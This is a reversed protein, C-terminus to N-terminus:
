WTQHTYSFTRLLELRLLESLSDISHSDINELFSELEGTLYGDQYTLSDPLVAHILNPNWDSKDYGSNPNGNARQNVFQLFNEEFSVADIYKKLGEKFNWEYDLKIGHDACLREGLSSLKSVLQSLRDWPLLDHKGNIVKRISCLLLPDLSTNVMPLLVEPITSSIGARYFFDKVVDNSYLNERSFLVPIWNVKRSACLAEWRKYVNFNESYPLSSVHLKIAKSYKSDEQLVSLFRSYAPQRFYCIVSVYFRNEAAQILDDLLKGSNDDSLFWAIFESSIIATNAKSKRLENAVYDVFRFQNRDIIEDSIAKAKSREFKNKVRLLISKEQSIRADLRANSPNLSNSMIINKINRSVDDLHLYDAIIPNADKKGPYKIYQIEPHWVESLFKQISTSGCKGMGIHLILQKM